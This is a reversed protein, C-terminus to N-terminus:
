KVELDIGLRELTTGEALSLQALAKNYNNVAQIENARAATLDRQLQLVIYTTSKGSQLKKQEAELAAEAYERAKRTAAVREYSSQAQRIADDIQVMIDRELAKLSLMAQEVAAKSARYNNRATINGLPISFQGGIYYFPQERRRIDEFVGSFEATSGAYGGGAVVDLQPFLQNYDYKLQIGASELNLKAQLIEPRRTLGRTWSLQRDFVQVPADLVGVPEPVIDAWESYEPAILKKLQHGQIALTNRATILDARIAAAQAEAQQEDLPAMTGVEVRKRNEEVLRLALELAKEQVKVQERMAILDYYAQEVQTVTRMIALRLGLESAKLRNRAIRIALRPQDIWFNKLLPQAVEAAVQGASTSYFRPVVQMLNTDFRYAKGDTDTATASLTYRMGWPLVGGISGAIRDTEAEQGPVPYAGQFLTEGSKSYSHRGSLSLSPDYAGYSGKLGFAALQPNYREIQLELNNQLALQICEQLTFPRRKLETEGGTQGCVCALVCMLGALIVARKM